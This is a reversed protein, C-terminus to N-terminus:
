PAGVSEFVATRMAATPLTNANRVGARMAASLGAAACDPEIECTWTLAVVIIQGGNGSQLPRLLFAQNRGLRGGQMEFCQPLNIGRVIRLASYTAGSKGGPSAGLIRHEINPM